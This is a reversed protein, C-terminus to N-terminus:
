GQIPLVGFRREIQCFDQIAEEFDSKQYAFWPCESVSMEAYAGQWILTDQVSFDGGTILELDPDPLDPCLLYKRFVLEDLAQHDGDQCLVMRIAELIEEKGSHNILLNLQLGSNHDTQEMILDLFGVINEPLPQFDGRFRVRIRDNIFTEINRFFVTEILESVLQDYGFADRHHVGPFAHITLYGIQMGQCLEIIEHLNNWVLETHDSLNPTPCGEPLNWVIVVHKPPKLNM